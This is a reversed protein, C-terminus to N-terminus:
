RRRFPKYSRRAEVEQAEALLFEEEEPALPDDRLRGVLKYKDHWEYLEVWKDAERRQEPSLGELSSILCAPELCGTCFARSADKGVLKYYSKGPGYFARGGSVDYIRGLISLFLPAAEGSDALQRGDYDALEERTLAICGACNDPDGLPLPEESGLLVPVLAYRQNFRRQRSKARSLDRALRMFAFNLYSLPQLLGDKTMPRGDMLADAVLGFCIVICTALMFLGIFGCCSRGRRRPIRSEQDDREETKLSNSAGPRRQRLSSDASM